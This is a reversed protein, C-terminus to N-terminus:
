LRGRRTALSAGGVHADRLHRDPYRARYVDNISSVRATDPQSELNGWETLLDALVDRSLASGDLHRDVNALLREAFLDGRALCPVPLGPVAAGALQIRGERTIEFKIPQGDVRLISRIGYQDFRPERLVDIGRPFIEKLGHDFVSERLRRYGDTDACPFAIDDSRRYEGLQLSIATGGAFYCKAEQLLPADLASLALVIRAHQPRRYM